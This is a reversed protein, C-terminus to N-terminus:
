APISEVTDGIAPLVISFTSGRDVSSRVLIDGGWHRVFNKSLFLGLGTGGARMSFFPEFIHAQHEPTIGCGNDSVDITVQQGAHATAGVRVTGGPPSAQVANLLLNILAHQLESEAAKVRLRRAGPADLVLAVGRERATPTVLRTAMAMAEGVDVVQAVSPDGRAMRLFQQTIGRCRLVQERATAAYDRVYAWDSNEGNHTMERGIGEVCALVTGLPTNLEHSFGSALLGLSALKHSEALQAEAARRESIDRWVEVVHVNGDPLRTVPSAHVEEWAVSGDPTHRECIRIQPQGSELCAMTPCDVVACAAAGDRRCSDGLLTERSTGFRTIFATNAAVVKRDADLVVIGDEISNIITELREREGQVQGVLSSVSDAMTNFERALRSITDSGTVPVRRDLNGQAIQRAAAEFRQLRRLVLVRVILGLAAVLLITIAATVGVMWRLDRGAAAHIEAADLDSILVGNIAHRSDHCEHCEARNRIPVVTRLIQSGATDIVRSSTRAAPPYRHCAQCTPSAIDLDDDAIPRGSFHVKGQRDLLMVNIVHPERGFTAIMRSILTRDDELMAHELAGRILESRAVADRRATEILTETHRLSYLYAGAASAISAAATIGLALGVTTSTLRPRM